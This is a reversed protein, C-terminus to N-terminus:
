KVDVHQNDEGAEFLLWDAPKVARLAMFSIHFAFFCHRLCLLACARVSPRVSALLRVHVRARTPAPLCLYVCM